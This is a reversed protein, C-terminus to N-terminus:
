VQPPRGLVRRGGGGGGQKGLWEELARQPAITIAWLDQALEVEMEPRVGHRDRVVRLGAQRARAGLADRRRACLRGGGWARPPWDSRPPSPRRESAARARSM